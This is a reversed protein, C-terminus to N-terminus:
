KGITNLYPKYVNFEFQSLLKPLEKYTYRRLEKGLYGYKQVWGYVRTNDNRTELQGNDTAYQRKTIWGMEHAMAFLKRIMPGKDDTNKNEAPSNFAMLLERAEDLSMESISGTRGNTFSDIINEKDYMLGHRYLTARVAKIQPKTIPTM